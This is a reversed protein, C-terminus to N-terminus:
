HADSITEQKVITSSGDPHRHTMTIDAVAHQDAAPRPRMMLLDGLCDQVATMVAFIGSTGFGFGLNAAFLRAMKEIHDYDGTEVAWLHASDLPVICPIMWRPLGSPVLVMCPRNDTLSWTGFIEIGRIARRWACLNLDVQPRVFASLPIFPQDTM